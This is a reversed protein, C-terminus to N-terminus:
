QYLPVRQRLVEEDMRPHTPDAGTFEGLPLQNDIDLEWKEMVHLALSSSASSHPSAARPQLDTLGLFRATVREYRRLKRVLYFGQLSETLTIRARSADDGPVDLLQLLLQHGFQSDAMRVVLGAKTLVAHAVALRDELSGKQVLHQLIHNGYKHLCLGRIIQINQLIEANLAHVQERSGQELLRLLIRCGFVHRAAYVVDHRLEDVIFQIDKPRMLVIYKQIVHNANKCEVAEWIRGKLEEGLAARDMDSMAQDDFADQLERCGNSHKAMQWVKGKFQKSSSVKAKDDADGGSTTGERTNYDSHHYGGEYCTPLVMWQQPGLQCMALQWQAFPTM